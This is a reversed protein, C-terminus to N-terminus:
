EGGAGGDDEDASEEEETPQEEVVPIEEDALTDELQVLEGDIIDKEIDFGEAYPDAIGLLLSMQRLAKNFGEKHKFVISANLTVIRDDAWRLRGLFTMNEVVLEQEKEAQLTASVFIKKKAALEGLVHKAGRRDAFDRLYWALMSARTSLELMANTVEGPLPRASSGEKWNKKSSPKDGEKHAKRKRDLPVTLTTIAESSQELFIIPSPQPQGAEAAGTAETRSSPPRSRGADTVKVPPPPPRRARNTSPASGTLKRSSMFSSKRPAPVSMIGQVIPLEDTPVRAVHDIDLGGKLLHIAVRNMVKRGGFVPSQSGSGEKGSHIPSLPRSDGDRDSKELYSSSVSSPSSSRQVEAVRVRRSWRRSLM